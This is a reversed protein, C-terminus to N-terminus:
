RISELLPLIDKLDVDGMATASFSLGADQWTVISEPPLRPPRNLVASHGAITIPQSYQDLAATGGDAPGITLNFNIDRLDNRYTVGMFWFGEPPPIPGGRVALVSLVRWDELHRPQPVRLCLLEEADRINDFVRHTVQPPTAVPAAPNQAAPAAICHMAQGAFDASSGGGVLLSAALAAATICGLLLGSAITGFTSM